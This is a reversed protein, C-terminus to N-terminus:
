RRASQHLSGNIIGERRANGLTHLLDPDAMREIGVRLDAWENMRPMRFLHQGEGTVRAILASLDSTAAAAGHLAGAIIDLRREIDIRLGLHADCLLFDKPRHQGHDGELVFGFRDADAIVHTIPKSAVDPRAIEAARMADRAIEFGAHDPDIGFVHPMQRRREAAHFIGAKAAVAAVIGEVEVHFRLVDRDGEVAMGDRADAHLLIRPLYASVPAPETDAM